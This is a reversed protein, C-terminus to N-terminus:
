YGVYYRYYEYLSEAFNDYEKSCDFRLYKTDLDMVRVRDLADADKLMKAIRFARDTDQIGYSTIIEAMHEDNPSHAHIAARVIAMDESPLVIIDTLMDSSRHGHEDDKSDDIRGIDHYSCATLLLETDARNCNNGMAILAGFLLVREIHTVGHITSKYLHETKLEKVYKEFVPWLEWRKLAGIQTDFATSERQLLDQLLSEM